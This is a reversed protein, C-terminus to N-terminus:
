AVGLRERIKKLQENRKEQVNKVMQEAYYKHKDLESMNEYSVKGELPKALNEDGIKKLNDNIILIADEARSIDLATLKDEKAALNKLLDLSPKSFREEAEGSEQIKKIIAAVNAAAILRGVIDCKEKSSIESALVTSVTTRTVQDAIEDVRIGDLYAIRQAEEKIIADQRKKEEEAKRAEEKVKDVDLKQAAERAALEKALREQVIKEIDQETPGAQAQGTLTAEIPNSMAAVYVYVHM